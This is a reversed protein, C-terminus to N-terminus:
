VCELSRGSSSVASCVTHPETQTHTHTQTHTRLTARRWFRVLTNTGVVVKWKRPAVAKKQEEKQSSLARRHSIRKAASHLHESEPVIELDRIKISGTTSWLHAEGKDSVWRAIRAPHTHSPHIITACLARKKLPGDGSVEEEEAAELFAVRCVFPTHAVSVTRPKGHRNGVWLVLWSKVVFARLCARVFFVVFSVCTQRPIPNKQM